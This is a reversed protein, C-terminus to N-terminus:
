KLQLKQILYYIKCGVCYEFLLELLVCLIFISFIGYHIYTIQFYDTVSLLLVFLLGFQAALKKAGSDTFHSKLKFINKVLTSLKIFFSYEKNGYIRIFFDFGVIFLFLINHSFYYSMLFLAIWLSNIRAITADVTQFSLPCSQAM